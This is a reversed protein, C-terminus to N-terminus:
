KYLINLAQKIFNFVQRERLGKKAYDYLYYSNLQNESLARSMDSMRMATITRGNKEHEKKLEALKLFKRMFRILLEDPTETM